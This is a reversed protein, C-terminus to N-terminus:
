QQTYHNSEDYGDQQAQQLDVTNEDEKRKRYNQWAFFGVTLILTVIALLLVTNDKKIVVPTTETKEKKEKKPKTETTETTTTETSMKKNNLIEANMDEIVEDPTRIYGPEGRKPLKDEVTDATIDEVNGLDPHTNAPGHPHNDSPNEQGPIPGLNQDDHPTDM